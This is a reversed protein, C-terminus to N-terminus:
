QEKRKLCIWNGDWYKKLLGQISRSLLIKTEIQNIIVKM